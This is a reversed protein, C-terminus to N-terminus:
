EEGIGISYGAASFCEQAAPDNPDYPANKFLDELDSTFDSTAYSDDVLESRKLCAVLLEDSDSLLDPNGQQTRYLAEIPALEDSCDDGTEMYTEIADDDELEPPILDIIGSARRTHEEEYGANVMCETYMGHAEDYQAQTIGGTKVAETLVEIVFPNEEKELSQELLEEYSGALQEGTPQDDVDDSDSGCATLAVVSVVLATIGAAYRPLQLAPKAIM